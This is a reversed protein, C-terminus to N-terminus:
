STKKGIQAVTGWIIRDILQRNNAVEKVIDELTIPSDFIGCAYNTSIGLSAYPIGLERAYVVEPVGTMGVVGGGAKKYMRIEAASEFRPGDTGVYVTRKPKKGTVKKITKELFGNLEPDYPHSMDAHVTKNDFFITLPRSRTFDLFDTMLCFSGPEIARDISGVAATAIISGVGLKKLAFFNARYNINHPFIKHMRGHRSMFFITHEPSEMKAAKVKGYPTNILIKRSNGQSDFSELGSGSIIAIKAKTKKTM